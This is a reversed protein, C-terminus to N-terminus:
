VRETWWLQAPGPRMTVSVPSPWPKEGAYRQCKDRCSKMQVLSLLNVSKEKVILFVKTVTSCEPSLTM